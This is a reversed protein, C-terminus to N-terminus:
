PSMEESPVGLDYRRGIWWLQNPPVPGRVRIEYVRPGFESRIHIEDTDGLHALWLDWYEIESLYEMAGSISWATQPDPALCIYQLPGGATTSPQAPRLGHERISQYRDAPSWHYLPSLRM